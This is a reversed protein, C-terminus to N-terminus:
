HLTRTTEFKRNKVQIDVSDGYIPNLRIANIEMLNREEKM